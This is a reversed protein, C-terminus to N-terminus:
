TADSVGIFKPKYIKAITVTSGYGLVCNAQVGHKRSNPYEEISNLAQRFWKKDKELVTMHIEAAKDMAKQLSSHFTSRTIGTEFEDYDTVKYRTYGEYGFISKYNSM